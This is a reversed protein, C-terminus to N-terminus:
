TTGGLFKFDQFMEDDDDLNLTQNPREPIASVDNLNREM